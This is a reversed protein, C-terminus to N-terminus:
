ALIRVQPERPWHRTRAHEIFGTVGKELEVVADDMQVGAKDLLAMLPTRPEAAVTAEEALAEAPPTEQAYTLGSVALSMALSAWSATRRKM